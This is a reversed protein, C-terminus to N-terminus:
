TPTSREGGSALYLEVAGIVADDDDLGGASLDSEADDRLLFYRVAAQTIRRRGDDMTTSRALLARCRERLFAAEAADVPAGAAEAHEFMAVHEDLERLLDAEPLLPLEVLPEFVARSEDSLGPVVCASPVLPREPLVLEDGRLRVGASYALAGLRRRDLREGHSAQLRALVTSVAARGGNEEVCARVLQARTMVRTDDWTALGVAGGRSLQFRADSRAIGRAMPITWRAHADSLRAAFAALGAATLGKGARDLEAALADTFRAVAEPGGPVDRSVLGIREEDVQVFPVHLVMLRFSLPAIMTRREMRRQLERVDLPAGNENLIDQALEAFHLREAEHDGAVTVRLRGLYCVEESRRLIEALNWHGFWDPLLAEERVAELLDPVRWQRPDQELIRVCIPVLRRSWKPYDPFHQELGVRGREFYFVEPPFKVRRGVAEYVQHITVPAPCQRLFAIVEAARTSGFAIMRGQADRHVREDLADRMLRLLGPASAPVREALASDVARMDAPCQMARLASVCGSWSAQVEEDTATVLADRDDIRVLATAGGAIRELFFAFAERRDEDMPEFWPDKAGLEDLWLAGGDLAAQLRVHVESVWPGRAVRRLARAEVQRVRERSVGLMGGIESLTRTDGSVGSRQTLVLRDIASLAAMRDLLLAWFSGYESAARPPNTMWALLLERTEVISRRGLNQAAALTSRPVSVLDAVTVLAEREVFAQMRGPLPVQALPTTLLWSPLVSALAEWSRAPPPSVPGEAARQLLITRSTEISKRGLNNARALEVRTVRVLERVSAIGQRRSYGLMRKPLGLEAVPMDLLWAPLEDGLADWEIDALEAEPERRDMTSRTARWLEEWEAGCEARIIARLQAISTRGLNKELRLERPHWRLLDGLTEIGRRAAWNAVRTPLELSDLPRDLPHPEVASM